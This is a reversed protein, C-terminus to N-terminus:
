AKHICSRIEEFHFNGGWARYDLVLEKWWQEVQQVSMERIVEARYYSYFPKNTQSKQKRSKNKEFLILSM